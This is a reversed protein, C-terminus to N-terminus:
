DALVTLFFEFGYSARGSEIEYAVDGDAGLRRGEGEGCEEGM